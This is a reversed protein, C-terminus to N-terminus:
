RDPPSCCRMHVYNIIYFLISVFDSVDQQMKYQIRNAVGYFDSYWFNLGGFHRVHLNGNSYDATFIMNDPDGQYLRLLDIGEEYPTVTVNIYSLLFHQMEFDIFVTQWDVILVFCFYKLLNLIQLLM